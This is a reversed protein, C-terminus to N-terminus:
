PCIDGMQAVSFCFEIFEKVCAYSVDTAEYVYRTGFNFNRRGVKSCRIIVTRHIGSKSRQCFILANLSKVWIHCLQGLRQQFNELNSCFLETAGEGAQVKRPCYEKTCELSLAPSVDPPWDEIDLLTLCNPFSVHFHCLVLKTAILNNYRHFALLPARNSNSTNFLASKFYASSNVHHISIKPTIKLLWHM